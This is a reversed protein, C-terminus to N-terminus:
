KIGSDYFWKSNLKDFYNYLFMRGQENMMKMQEKSPEVRLYHSSDKEFKDKKLTYLSIKEKCYDWNLYDLFGDRDFDGFCDTGSLYGDVFSYKNVIVKDRVEILFWYNNEINRFFLRDRAGLLIFNRGNYKFEVANGVFFLYNRKMVKRENLNNKLLSDIDINQGLIEIYEDKCDQNVDPIYNYCYHTINYQTSIRVPLLKPPMNLSDLEEISFKGDYVIVKDRPNIDKFLIKEGFLKTFSFEVKTKQMIFESFSLWCCIVFLGFLLNKLKRIM